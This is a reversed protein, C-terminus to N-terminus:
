WPNVDYSIDGENYYKPPKTLMRNILNKFSNLDYIKNNRDGSQLSAQTTAIM